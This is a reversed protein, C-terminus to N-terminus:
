KLKISFSLIEAACIHLSLSWKFSFPVITKAFLKICRTFGLFMAQSFDGAM